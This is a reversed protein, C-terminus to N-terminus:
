LFKFQWQYRSELDALLSNWENKLDSLVAEVRAKVTFPLGDEYLLSLRLEYLRNFMAILATNLGPDVGELAAILDSRGFGAGDFDFYKSNLTEKFLDRTRYKSYAEIMSELTRDALEIVRYLEYCRLFLLHEAESSIAAESEERLPSRMTNPIKFLTQKKKTKKSM